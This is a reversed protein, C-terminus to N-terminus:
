GEYEGNCYLDVWVSGSTYEIGLYDAMDYVMKTQIKNREFYLSLLNWEKGAELDCLYKKDEMLFSLSIKEAKSTAQGRKSIKELNGTYESNGTSQVVRSRGTESNRKDAKLYDLSGSQTNEEYIANEM